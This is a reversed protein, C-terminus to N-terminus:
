SNYWWKALSMTRWSFFVPKPEYVCDVADLLAISDNTETIISVSFQDNCRTSINKSFASDATVTALVKKNTWKLEYSDAIGSIYHVKPNTRSTSDFKMRISLYLSTKFTPYISISYEFFRDVDVVTISDGVKFTSVPSEIHIYVPSIISKAISDSISSDHIAFSVLESGHLLQFTEVEPAENEEKFGLDGIMGCAHLSITLSALMLRRSQLINFNM